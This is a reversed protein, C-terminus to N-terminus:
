FARKGNSDEEQNYFLPFIPNRDNDSQSLSRTGRIKGSKGFFLLDKKFFLELDETEPQIRRNQQPFVTNGSLLIGFFFM